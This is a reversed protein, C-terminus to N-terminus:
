EKLVFTVLLAIKLKQIPPRARVMRFLNLTQHAQDPATVCFALMALVPYM